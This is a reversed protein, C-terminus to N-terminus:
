PPTPFTKLTVNGHLSDRGKLTAKFTNTKISGVLATLNFGGSGLGSVVMSFQKRGSLSATGTYAAGPSSGATVNYRNNNGGQSTLTFFEVSTTGGRKGTASYVGGIDLLPGDPIGSYTVKGLPGSGQLTVRPSTGLSVKGNFTISNTSANTSTSTIVFNGENLYGMIKGKEDFSWRGEITASGFYNTFAPPTNTDGTRSGDDPGGRPNPEPVKKTTYIQVYGDISGDGNFTIQAIGQAKGSLTFDWAGVPSDFAAAQAQPVSGALLALAPAVALSLWKTLTKKKM